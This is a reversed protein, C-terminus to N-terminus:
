RLTVSTVTDKTFTKTVVDGERGAIGIPKGNHTLDAGGANGLKIFVRDNGSFTLTEGTKPIGEYEFKGDIIVQVWCKDKFTASVAVNKGGPLPANLPTQSDPPPTTNPLNSAAPTNNNEPQVLPPASSVPPAPVAPMNSPWLAVAGVVAVLSVAAIIILRKAPSFGNKRRERWERRRNLKKTKFSFDEQTDKSPSQLDPTKIDEQSAIKNEKKDMEKNQRYIEMIDQPDLDLHTAYNRIFGKLYVEGPIVKYNGEEIARLYLTRISIANEIDKLELGQRKRENKLIEGVTTLM